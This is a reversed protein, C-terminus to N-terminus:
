MQKSSQHVKKLLQQSEKELKEIVLNQNFKKQEAPSLATVKKALQTTNVLTVSSKYLTESSTKLNDCATKILKMPSYEKDTLFLKTKSLLNSMDEIKKNTKQILVICSNGLSTFPDISDSIDQITNQFEPTNTLKNKIDILEKRRQNFSQIMDPTIIKAYTNVQTQLGNLNKVATKKTTPM